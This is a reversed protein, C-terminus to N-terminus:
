NSSVSIYRVSRTTHSVLVLSVTRLTITASRDMRFDLIRRATPLAVRATNKLMVNKPPNEAHQVMHFTDVTRVATVRPASHGM